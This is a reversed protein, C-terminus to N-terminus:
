KSSWYAAINAIEEDTLTLKKKHKTKGAVVDKIAAELTAADKGAWDEKAHCASCVEETKAKGAAVDGGAFATGSLAVSITLLCGSKLM